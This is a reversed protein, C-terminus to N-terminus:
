RRFKEAIGDLTSFVPEVAYGAIFALASASLGVDTVVGGFGIVIGALGGLAVRVLHRIPSTASFTTAKIEESILRVVYTCAGMLGLVIPLVTSTLVGVAIQVNLRDGAVDRRSLEYDRIARRVAAVNRAAELNGPLLARDIGFVLLKSMMLNKQLMQDLLYSHQKLLGQLSDIAAKQQDDAQAFNTSGLESELRDTEALMRATLEDNQEVLKGVERDLGKATSVLFGLAVSIVLLVILLFLYRTATRRALSVQRDRAWFAWRPVAVAERNTSLTDVSAPRVLECLVNFACWFETAIQEDWTGSQEADLATCVTAVTARPLDKVNEAAFRLLMSAKSLAEAEGPLVARPM